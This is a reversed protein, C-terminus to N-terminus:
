LRYEKDVWGLDPDGVLTWKIWTKSEAYHRWHGRRFHLRKRHSPPEHLDRPLMAARTRRALDVIHFSVLPARGRRERAHNLRHPARVVETTAVEAELAVCIAYVAENITRWLQPREHYAADFIFWDDVSSVALTMGRGTPLTDDNFVSAIVSRGNIRFEFVCKEFPLKVEANKDFDKAGAFAQAWDHQVVFVSAREFYALTTACTESTVAGEIEAINAVRGEILADKLKHLVSGHPKELRVSVSKNWAVIDAIIREIQRLRALDSQAAIREKRNEHTQSKLDKGIKHMLPILKASPLSKFLRIIKMGADRELDSRLIPAGGDPNPFDLVDAPALNAIRKLILSCTASDYNDLGRAARTEEVASAARDLIGAAAAGALMKFSEFALHAHNTTPTDGDFLPRHNARMDALIEDINQAKDSGPVRFFKNEIM